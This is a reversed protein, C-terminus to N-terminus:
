SKLKIQTLAIIIIVKKKYQKYLHKKTEVRARKTIPRQAILNALLDISNNSNNNNVGHLVM